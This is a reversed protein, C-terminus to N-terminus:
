NRWGSKCNRATTTAPRTTARSVSRKSRGKIEKEDGAGDVITTNNKDVVVKGARGLDAITVTELKRGMEETIVQGGTLAAIDGLM